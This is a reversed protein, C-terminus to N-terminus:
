PTSGIWSSEKGVASYGYLGPNGSSLHTDTGSTVMVGNRYLTVTSGVVCVKLLDNISPASGNSGINTYASAASLYQLTTYTDTAQGYYGANGSAAIRVGVGISGTIHSPIRVLNVQSCQQTPFTSANYFAISETSSTISVTGSSVSFGGTNITWSSGITAGSFTFPVYLVIGNQGSFVAQPDAALNVEPMFRFALLVALLWALILKKLM